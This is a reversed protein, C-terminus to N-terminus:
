RMWSLGEHNGGRRMGRSFTLLGELIKARDEDTDAAALGLRKRVYDASGWGSRSVTEFEERLGAADGLARRLLGRLAHWYIVPSKEGPPLRLQELAEANRSLRYLAEARWIKAELDWPSIAIARDLCELAEPYRKLCVLAGGKWCHAYQASRTLADDLSELAREYEGLWLRMEGTWAIVNGKEFESAMAEAERLAAFAEPVKGQCVLTEGIMCQALWGGPVTSRVVARLLRLAEPFEGAYFRKKATEMLMWGYREGPAAEVAAHDAALLEEAGDRFKRAADARLLIIRYYSAWPLKPQVKKLRDLEALAKEHYETSACTFDYEEIITPWRLVEVHQVRRGGDLIREGIRFAEAFERRLLALRFRDTWGQLDGDAPEPCARAAERLPADMEATRELRMLAEALYFYVELAAPNLALAERYGAAAAELDGRHVALRARLFRLEWDPSAPAEALVREAEDFRVQRMLTRALNLRARLDGPRVKLLQLSVKIYDDMRGLKEYLGALKSLPDPTSSRPAGPATV